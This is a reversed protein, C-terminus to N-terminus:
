KSLTNDEVQSDIIEQYYDIIDDVYAETKPDVGENKVATFGKYYSALALKIDSTKESDSGQSVSKDVPKKEPNEKWKKIM